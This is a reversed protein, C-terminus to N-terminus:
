PQRNALPATTETGPQAADRSPALGKSELIRVEVRRNEKRGERTTNDGIPQSEGYGMPVVFRRLPISFNEALFQIVADARQRSLRRNYEADGDASAFGAVEILFGRESKAQEALKELEAQDEKSLTASGAKFHVIATTKVNYDDLSTIRENAAQVGAKANDAVSRAGKAAGMADDASTQAAKASDRAATSITSVEQIQGSLRQANQETETLRNQTATLRNEVPVVRTDTTQAVRYDDNKFRIERAAIAGSSDGTGKVEVHLGPLLDNRSFKKAGRFINRKKEKIETGAALIVNYTGGGSSRVTLGESGQDLIVGELEIKQGATVKVTDTTATDAGQALTMTAFTLVFAVLLSPALRCKQIRSM